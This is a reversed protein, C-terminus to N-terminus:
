GVRTAAGDVVLRAGTLQPVRPSLGLSVALAIEDAATIRGTPVAAALLRDAGAADLASRRAIAERLGAYRPTDTPGPDVCVFGVGHQAYERALSSVLAGLAANMAASTTLHPQPDFASNGAVVVVRAPPSGALVPLCARVARVTALFKGHFAFEWMEDTLAAFDGLPTSGVCCVLGDLGGYAAVAAAALDATGETTTLDGSVTAATGGGARVAAAVAGLEAARRAGLVLRTGEGALLLAVARGIGSSAGTIAIRHGKLGLDM